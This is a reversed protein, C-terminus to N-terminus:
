NSLNLTYLDKAVGRGGMMEKHKVLGENLSFNGNGSSPGFSYFQRHNYVKAILTTNIFDLARVERGQSSNAMYQTHVVKGYDYIVVGALLEGSRRAEFLRIRDGFLVKLSMIEMLTHVPSVQYRSMLVGSLLAWFDSFDANETVQLGMSVCQATKRRNTASVMPTSTLDIVSSLDRGTLEAHNHFLAYLDEGAPSRHFIHPIAKYIMRNFGAKRCYELLERFLEMVDATGIRKGLLLGGYTLGEHSIIEGQNETAPFLALIKGNREAILSHDTFRDKHYSMYARNFQFLGNKAESVFRNWDELDGDGYRRIFIADKRTTM